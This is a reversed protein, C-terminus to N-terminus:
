AGRKPRRFPFQFFLSRRINLFFFFFPPFKLLNWSTSSSAKSVRSFIFYALILSFTKFISYLTQTTHYLARIYINLFFLFIRGRWCWFPAWSRLKRSRFPICSSCIPALHSSHINIYKNRRPYSPRLPPSMSIYPILDRQMKKKKEKKGKGTASSIIHNQCYLTM